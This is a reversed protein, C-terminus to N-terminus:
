DYTGVITVRTGLRAHAYVSDMYDNRLAVCGDTWDRGEGGDGHIEILNGIGVRRPIEGRRQRLAFRARDADNPYDILLAKYYRTRRGEKLDVVRYLGEPTARDGSHSKARLGNLGLEAPFTAVPRGDRYIVLRRKLKDVLIVAEGTERSHAITESAWRQWQRRLSADRFRSHLSLWARDVVAAEERARDLERVAAETDGAAALRHATGLLVVARQLAAAERGGMSTEGMQVKARDVEASAVRTLSALRELSRAQRQRHAVAAERAAVAVRLWATEARGPTRRWRPLAREGASIREAESLLFELYQAQQPFHERVMRSTAPAVKRVGVEQPSPDPTRRTAVAVVVAVVMAPALFLLLRRRLAAAPQERVM